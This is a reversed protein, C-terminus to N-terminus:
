KLVTLQNFNKFMRKNIPLQLNVFLFNHPEDFVHNYILEADQKDLPLFEERLVEKESKTSDFFFIQNAMSRITNPISRIKQSVLFTQLSSHPGLIHRGNFAIKKFTRLAEKKSNLWAVADDLFIAVHHPEDAEGLNKENEIIEEIIEELPQDDSLEMYKEEPINLDMTISPSIYYISHFVNNYLNDQKTGNLLTKILSSKGSAPLGIILSTNVHNLFPSLNEPRGGTAMKAGKIQIPNNKELIRM